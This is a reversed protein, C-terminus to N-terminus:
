SLSSLVAYARKSAFLIRIEWALDVVAGSSDTGDVEPSLRCFVYSWIKYKLQLKIELHFIVDSKTKMLYVVRAFCHPAALTYIYVLQGPLRVESM